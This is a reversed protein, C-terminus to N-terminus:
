APLFIAVYPGAYSINKGTQVISHCWVDFRLWLLTSSEERPNASEELKQSIWLWSDLSNNVFHILHTKGDEEGGM